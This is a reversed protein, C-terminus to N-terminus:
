YRLFFQWFCPLDNNDSSKIYTGSDRRPCLGFFINLEGLVIGLASLYIEKKMTDSEDGNIRRSISDPILRRL